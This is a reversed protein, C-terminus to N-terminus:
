QSSFLRNVVAYCAVCLAFDVALGFDVRYIQHRAVPPLYRQVSYYILNGAVIALLSRRFNFKM